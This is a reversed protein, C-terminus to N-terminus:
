KVYENHSGYGDVQIHFDVFLLGVDAGYTDNLDSSNRWIRCILISSIKKGTGDIGTNSTTLPHIVHTKATFPGTAVVSSTVTAPFVEPTVPDYNVWTYDLNWQVNGTTTTKPMWHIHPYITTGEKWTHPLQVTFSMSELSGNNLFFWIQPGSSGTIYNLTASSSGKDLTVRLDDWRTSQGVLKVWVPSAPTGSNYYYGVGDADAGTISSNTNYVILSTAPDPITTADTTSILSIRPLLLGKDTSVIDLMASIDPLNGSTNIAVNQGYFTKPFSLIVFFLICLHTPTIKKM